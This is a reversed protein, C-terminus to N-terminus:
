NIKLCSATFATFAISHVDKEANIYYTCVSYAHAYMYMYTIRTTLEVQEITALLIICIVANSISKAHLM